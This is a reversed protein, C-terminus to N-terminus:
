LILNIHYLFLDQDVPIEGFEFNMIDESYVVEVEEKIADTKDVASESESDILNDILVNM